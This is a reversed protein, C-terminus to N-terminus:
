VKVNKLGKFRDPNKIMERETWCVYCLYDVLGFDGSTLPLVDGCKVCKKIEDM